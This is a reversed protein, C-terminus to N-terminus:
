SAAILFYRGIHETLLPPIGQRIDRMLVRYEDPIGWTERIVSLPAYTRSMISVCDPFNVAPCSFSSRFHRVKTGAVLTLNPRLESTSGPVNEIVFHKGSAHALLLANPILRPHSNRTRRPTVKSYAQCPPSIHIFDFDDLYEYSLSFADGKHFNFPYSSSMDKIDWGTIEADPMAMKYGIAALGAGCCLDLIRM